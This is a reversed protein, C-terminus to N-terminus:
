NDKLKQFISEIKEFTGLDKSDSNALFIIIFKDTYLDKFGYPFEAEAFLTTLKDVIRDKNGFNYILYINGGNFEYHKEDSGSFSFSPSKKTTEKLSIGAEQFEGLIPKIISEEQSISNCATLIIISFFV